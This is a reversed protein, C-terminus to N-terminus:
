DEEAEELKGLDVDEEDGVDATPNEMAAMRAMLATIQDDRAQLDAALKDKDAQELWKIAKQKLVGVGMIHQSNSDSMGVLQEVTRVNMYKLTEVQSRTIAPWEELMTGEIAEQDERALYKKYHEAFRTKDMEMAPRIIISDKNGPMMIQIYEKDEYIPRQAEDSKARNIKAHLFFKVLLTEDNAYRGENGLAMQTQGYDAEQLQAM